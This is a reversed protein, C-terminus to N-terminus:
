FRPDLFFYPEQGRLNARLAERFDPRHQEYEIEGGDFGPNLFLMFVQAHRLPGVWPQPILKLQFGEGLHDADDPHIRNETELKSWFAILDEATMLFRARDRSLTVQGQLARRHPAPFGGGLRQAREDEHG